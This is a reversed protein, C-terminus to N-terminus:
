QAVVMHSAAGLHMYHWNSEDQAAVWTAPLSILLRRIRRWESARRRHLRFPYNPSTETTEELVRETADSGRQQEKGQSLFTGGTHSAPLWKAHKFKQSGDKQSGGSACPLHFGKLLVSEVTGRGWTTAREKRQCSIDGDGLVPICCYVGEGARGGPHLASMERSCELNNFNNTNRCM